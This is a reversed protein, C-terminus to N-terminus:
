FSYKAEVFVSSNDKLRGYFANDEGRFLNAGLSGKWQDNIAYVLKPKLVFDRRTFSAIGAIEGELTEQRWKNSVRFTMGHQRRDFQNSMVAEQIAVTRLAPDSVASPDQYRSVYRVYYQLNINLYEFFTRDGGAVLHFYPNKVFPNLGDSDETRTYAAEARLAYRGVVTAADAGIVNIRHHDLRLNLGSASVSGISLDPNLDFGNFYSVSWDIAKGSQEVKIGGGQGQHINESFSLGSVHPVPLVNPRFQPLWIGTLSWDNFNYTAKAAYAGSRQDDDEPVLLTYDRPSLNDTPNIKDAKGWVIIQKGIRFDANDSGLNLYGERLKRQHGDGRTADANMLWGELVLGANDGLKPQAKLWLARSSIDKKDDLNMSSSWYGARVSGSVGLTQTLNQQDPPNEEAWGAQCNLLVAGLALMPLRFYKM